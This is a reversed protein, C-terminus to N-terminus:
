IPQRAAAASLGLVSSFSQAAIGTNMVQIGACRAGELAVRLENGYRATWPVEPFPNTIVAAWASTFGFALMMCAALVRLRHHPKHVFIHAKKMNEQLIGIMLAVDLARFGANTAAPIPVAPACTIAAARGRRLRLVSRLYDCFDLFLLNKRLNRCINHREGFELSARGGVQNLLCRRSWRHDAKSIQWGCEPCKWEVRPM